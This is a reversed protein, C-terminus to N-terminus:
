KKIPDTGGRSCPNCRLTRWIALPLGKFIGHREITKYAYESCTPHFKCYGHPFYIKPLGHDPSFVKQYLRILWLLPKRPIKILKDFM